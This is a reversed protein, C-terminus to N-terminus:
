RLLMIKQRESRGDVELRAFYVGASVRAGSDDRGDWAREHRGREVPGSALTRVLRGNVNYVLVRVAGAHDPVDFRISTTGAFPNPSAPYLALLLRGGTEISPKWGGVVDETGDALVAHLEYWFTTEPWLAKDEYSGPSEAPLPEDNLRTFPGDESTARYVNFAEIGDLSAVSWRLVATGQETVSAFFAGEVPVNISPLILWFGDYARLDTDEAMPGVPGQAITDHSRYSASSAAAGGGSVAEAGRDIAAAPLALCLAAAFVTLLALPRSMGTSIKM